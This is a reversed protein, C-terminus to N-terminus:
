RLASSICASLRTLDHPPMQMCAQDHLLRLIPVLSGGRGGPLIQHTKQSCFYEQSQRFAPQTFSPPLLDANAPLALGQCPGLPVLHLKAGYLM